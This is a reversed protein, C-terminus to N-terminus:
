DSINDFEENDEDDEPFTEEAFLENVSSDDEELGFIKLTELFRDTEDTLHQDYVFEILTSVASMYDFACLITEEYPTIGDRLGDYTLEIGLGAANDRIMPMIREILMNAEDSGPTLTMLDHVMSIVTEKNQKLQSIQEFLTDVPINRGDATYSKGSVLNFVLETSAGTHDCDHDCCGHECEDTTEEAIEEEQTKIQENM